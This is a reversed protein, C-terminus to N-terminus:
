RRAVTLHRCVIAVLAWRLGGRSLKARPEAEATTDQRWTLACGTCRYRHVRVQLTTPRWGFPAHALRRGVTGIPRGQGGCQHCWDDAEVVRCDVVARHPELRQGVVTLGLDALGTFTTLDPTTFTADPV